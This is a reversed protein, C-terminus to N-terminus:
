GDHLPNDLDPIDLAYTKRLVDIVEQLDKIPIRLKKLDSSEITLQRIFLDMDNIIRDPLSVRTEPELVQYLRLVDNKHKAIDRGDIHQGEHKRQSLDPWAKAKLVILYEPKLCSLGDMIYRGELILRYYDDDLLIASLSSLEETVPIPTLHSAGTLVLQDPKRSFLELMEPYEQNVPKDFRYFQPTGSSKLRNQYGGKRIFQWFARVFADTLAEVILVLDIDKTARSPLDNPELSAACATAGIVVYQDTYEAFHETFLSIGRVM